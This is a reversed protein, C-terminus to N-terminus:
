RANTPLGNSNVFPSQAWAMYVHTSGSQNHSGASSRIKFGNACHDIQNATSESMSDNWYLNKTLNYGDRKNDSVAWYGTDDIEKCVVLAPSFGLHIYPGDANGNGEYTGFKSYGKKESFLYAIFTEGNENTSAHSGLSFVSSTPATTTFRNDAQTKAFTENLYLFEDSALSSHYVAWTNVASRNKVIIMKPVASLSHSITRTSGNGTYSVIDFGSTATEKWCWAVRTQGSTNVGTNNGITFGDTGFATLTDTNTYEATTANSNLVKTVGRTSDFLAHSLSDSRSKIWVFDPQMNETGDLTLALTSGTGTYIKTQFYLESNNLNENVYAM